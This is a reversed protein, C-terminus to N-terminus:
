DFMEDLKELIFEDSPKPNAETDDADLVPSLQLLYDQALDRVENENEPNKKYVVLAFIYKNIQLFYLHSNVPEFLEISMEATNSMEVMSQFASFSGAAITSIEQPHLYDFFGAQHVLYGTRDVLMVCQASSVELFYDVTKEIQSLADEGLMYFHRQIHGM